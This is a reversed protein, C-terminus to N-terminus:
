TISESFNVLRSNLGRVLVSVRRIYFTYSEEEYVTVQLEQHMTKCVYDGCVNDNKGRTLNDPFKRVLKVSNVNTVTHYTM